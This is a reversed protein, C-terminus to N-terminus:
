TPFILPSAGTNRLVLHKRIAPHGNYVRYVVSVELPLEKHRLRLTLSKGNPLDAQHADLLTSRLM